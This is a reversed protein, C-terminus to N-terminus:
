RYSKGPCAPHGPAAELPLRGRAAAVDPSSAAGIPLAEASPAPLWGFLRALFQPMEHAKDFFGDIGIADCARQVAEGVNNTLIVVRGAFGAARAREIVQVGSGPHLALDLSVVDPRGEIILSVASDEDVATGIVEIGPRQAVLRLLQVRVLDSDEVIALKM